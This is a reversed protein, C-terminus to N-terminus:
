LKARLRQYSQKIEGAVRELSEEIKDSAGEVFDEVADKQDDFRREFADWRQELKEWEDRADAKALHMKLRLEDRYQKLEQVLENMRENSAAM